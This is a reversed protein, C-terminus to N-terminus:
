VLKSLIFTKTRSHQWQPHEHQRSTHCLHKLMKTLYWNFFGCHHLCSRIAARWDYNWIQNARYYSCCFFVHSHILKFFMFRTCHVYLSFLSRSLLYLAVSEVQCWVNEVVFPKTLHDLSCVSFHIHVRKVSSTHIWKFFNLSSQVHILENIVHSSFKSGTRRFPSRAYSQEGDEGLHASSNCVCSCLMLSILLGLLLKVSLSQCFWQSLMGSTSQSIRKLHSAWELTQM